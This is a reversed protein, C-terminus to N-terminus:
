LRRGEADTSIGAMGIRIGFTSGRLQRATGSRDDGPARGPYFGCRWAWPDSSRLIRSREAILGVRVGAFHIHWTERQGNVRKRTLQPTACMAGITVADLNSWRKV